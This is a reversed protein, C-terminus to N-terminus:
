SGGVWALEGSDERQIGLYKESYPKLAIVM